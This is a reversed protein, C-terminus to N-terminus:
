LVQVLPYNDVINLYVHAECLSKQLMEFFPEFALKSDILTQSDLDVEMGLLICGHTDEQTNGKHIRIGEFNPVNLVEPMDCDFHESYNIVVSYVGTPIATIGMIKEARELNELTMCVFFNDDTHLEGIICNDLKYKRQLTIIM